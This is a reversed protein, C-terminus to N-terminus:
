QPKAAVGLKSAAVVPRIVTKLRVPTHVFVKAAAKDNLVTTDLMCDELLEANKVGANGCVTRAHALAQASLNGSFLPKKPNGIEPPVVQTFLSAGAQVRWSNGYTEYLDTFAVPETLLVGSAAALTRANGKPNGLLGRANSHPANGLLVQVDLWASNATARLRNGRGDSATYVNGRRLVQVGDALQLMGGDALERVIGDIELRTPEVLVSVRSRGMAAAVAKNVAANPWTPAGSRQRAQVIFGAGDDVLVFDGSAQFDYHLGDFTTIHTDGVSIAAACGMLATGAANSETFVLSPFQTIAPVETTSTLILNNTEGTFSQFDCGPGATTGSATSTRVVLTTNANFNAADGGGNGFVNFEAINWQSGLDPFRNDGSASHVTGNVSVFVSDDANGNVGAAAGNVIVQALNVAKTAPAAVSSAANVACDTEAGIQFPCWGDTFVHSGDCHASRPAPCTANAAGWNILWYQIFGSGGSEYVFQEWGNCSSGNVSGSCTTTTFTDTNIQLSYSDAAGNSDTEGTTSVSDFSGEAQTIHGTVQASFDGSNNGVTDIRTAGNDRPPYPKHPPEKCPVEKWETDPYTATFCGKRPKTRALISKRWHEREVASAKGFDPGIETLPPKGAQPPLKVTAEPAPQVPDNQAAVAAASVLVLATCLLAAGLFASRHQLLLNTKM